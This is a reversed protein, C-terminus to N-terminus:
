LYSRWLLRRREHVENEAAHEPSVDKAIPYVDDAFTMGDTGAIEAFHTCFRAKWETETTETTM